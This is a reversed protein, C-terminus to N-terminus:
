TDGLPLTPPPMRTNPTLEAASLQRTCVIFVKVSGDKAAGLVGEAVYQTAVEAMDEASAM